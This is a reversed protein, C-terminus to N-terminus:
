EERESDPIKKPMGVQPSDPEPKSVDEHVHELVQRLNRMDFYDKCVPCRVYHRKINDPLHDINEM